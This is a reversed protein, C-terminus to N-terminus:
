CPQQIMISILVSFLNDLKATWYIVLGTIIYPLNIEHNSAKSAKINLCTQWLLYQLLYNFALQSM